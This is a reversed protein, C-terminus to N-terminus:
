FPTVPARTSYWGFQHDFLLDGHTITSYQGVSHKVTLLAPSYSHLVNEKKKNSSIKPEPIIWCENVTYITSLTNKFILVSMSVFVICVIQM